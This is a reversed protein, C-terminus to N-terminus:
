KGPIARRLRYLLPLLIGLKHVLPVFRGFRLFLGVKLKLIEISTWGRINCTRCVDELRGTLLQGRFAKMRPNNLIDLMSDGDSLTGLSRDWRCCPIIGGDAAVKAYIWPDVCDRTMGPAQRTAHAPLPLSSDGDSRDSQVRDNVSEFLSDCIYTAGHKRIIRFVNAFLPLVERLRDPPLETIHMVSKMAAIDEHKVLNIFNFLSVGEALGYCVYQELRWITKDSLVCHWWFDPPRRGDKVACARIRSMNHILNRFDGGRRLERFLRPDVTDCSTQVIRFRSLTHVEEESFERALNSSIYLQLGQDLM